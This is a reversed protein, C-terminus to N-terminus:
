LILLTHASDHQSGHQEKSYKHHVQLAVPPSSCAKNEKMNSRRQLMITRWKWVCTLWYLTFLSPRIENGKWNTTEGHSDAVKAIHTLPYTQKASPFTPSFLFFQASFFHVFSLGECHYFHKCLEVKKSFHKLFSANPSLLISLVRVGIWWHGKVLSLM